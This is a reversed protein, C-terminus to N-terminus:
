SIPNVKIEYIIYDLENKDHYFKDIVKRMNSAYFYSKYTSAEGRKTWIVTHSVEERSHEKVWILAKELGEVENSCPINLLLFTENKIPNFTTITINSKNYEFHAHCKNDMKIIESIRSELEIKKKEM